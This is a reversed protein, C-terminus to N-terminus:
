AVGGLFTHFWTVDPKSERACFPCRWDGSEEQRAYEDGTLCVGRHEPCTVAFATLGEYPTPIPHESM